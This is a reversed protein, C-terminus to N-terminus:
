CFGGRRGQSQGPRGAAAGVGRGPRQVISRGRRRGRRLSPASRWALWPLTLCSSTLCSPIAILMAMSWAPVCAIRESALRPDVEVVGIPVQEFQYSTPPLRSLAACSAVIVLVLITPGVGLRERGSQPAHGPWRTAATSFAAFEQYSGTTLVQRLLDDSTNRTSQRHGRQTPWTTFCNM